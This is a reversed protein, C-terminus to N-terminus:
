RSALNKEVFNVLWGVTLLDLVSQRLATEHYPNLGPLDESMELFFEEHLLRRADARGEDSTQPGLGIFVSGLYDTPFPFGFNEDMRFSIELFDISELGLDGFLTATPVCDAEELGRTDVLIRVVVEAVNIPEGVVRRKLRGLLSPPKDIESSYNPPPPPRGTEGEPLLSPAGPVPEAESRYDRLPRPPAVYGDPLLTPSASLGDPRTEQPSRQRRECWSAHLKKLVTALIVLSVCWFLLLAMDRSM